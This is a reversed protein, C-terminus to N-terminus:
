ELISIGTSIRVTLKIMKRIIFTGIAILMPSEVNKVPRYTFHKASPNGTISESLRTDSM